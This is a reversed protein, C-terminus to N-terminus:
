PRSGPEGSPVRTVCGWRDAARAATATVLEAHARVLDRHVPRESDEFGDGARDRGGIRRERLEALCRHETRRHIRALRWRAPVHRAPRARGRRSPFGARRGPRATTSGEPVRSVTVYSDGVACLHYYTKTDGRRLDNVLGGTRLGTLARTRESPLLGDCYSALRDDYRWRKGTDSVRYWTWGAVLVLVLPLM